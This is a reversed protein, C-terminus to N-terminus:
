RKGYYIVATNRLIHPSAPRAIPWFVTTKPGPLVRGDRDGRLAPADLDDGVLQAAAGGGEDDGKGVARVQDTAGGAASVNECV